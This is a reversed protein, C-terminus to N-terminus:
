LAMLLDHEKFYSTFDQQVVNDVLDRSLGKDGSVLNVETSASRKMAKGPYGFLKKTEQRLKKSFGFVKPTKNMSSETSTTGPLENDNINLLNKEDKSNLHGQIEETLPM